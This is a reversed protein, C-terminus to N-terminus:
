SSMGTALLRARVRDLKGSELRPLAPVIVLRKPIKYPALRERLAELISKAQDSSLDTDAAVAVAVVVHGWEPHAIGTVVVDGIRPDLLLAGEVETPMIKEGGCVIVDDVRGLVHWNGQADVQALDRTVFWDQPDRPAEGLYGRFMAPGRLALQGDIIRAEFGALLKGVGTSADSTAGLRQSLAASCSETLGYSALVPWGQALARSCVAAPLAAGGVLVARLHSPVALPAHGATFRALQTPVLSVLTVRQREAFALPETEAPSMVVVARRALLCRILVMLGGVHAYPINLLWRDGAQWGLNRESAQASALMAERALVVGKPQGTSGSTMVVFAGEPVALTNDSDSRPLKTLEPATWHPHVLLASTGAELACYLELLAEYTPRAVIAASPAGLVLRAEVDRALAAFTVTRGEVILAVDSPAEKAALTVSLKM